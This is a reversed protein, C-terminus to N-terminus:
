AALPPSAPATMKPLPGHYTCWVANVVIHTHQIALLQQTYKRYAAPLCGKSVLAELRKKEAALMSICTRLYSGSADACLNDELVTIQAM